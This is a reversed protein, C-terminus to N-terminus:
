ENPMGRIFEENFWSRDGADYHERCEPCMDHDSTMYPKNCNKCNRQIPVDRIRANREPIVKTDNCDSCCRGDNLPHANHGETWSGVVEIENRCLSCKM